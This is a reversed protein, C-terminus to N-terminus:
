KEYNIELIEKMSGMDLIIGGFAPVAGGFAWSAGGRPTVPINEKAAYEMIRAVDKADRPKVIIDPLTKFALAMEKPLPMLDHSYLLRDLNSESIRNEGVIKSLNIYIGSRTNQNKQIKSSKEKNNSQDGM